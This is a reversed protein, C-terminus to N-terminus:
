QVGLQGLDRAVIPYGPEQGVSAAELLAALLADAIDSSHHLEYWRVLVVCIIFAFFFTAFFGLRASRTLANRSSHSASNSLNASSSLGLFSLPAIGATERRAM